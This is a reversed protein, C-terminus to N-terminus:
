PRQHSNIASRQLNSGREPEDEGPRALDTGADLADPFIHEIPLMQRYQVLQIEIRDLQDLDAIPSPPDYQRFIGARRIPPHNEFQPSVPLIRPVAHPGERTVPRPGLNPRHQRGQSWAPRRHLHPIIQQLPVRLPQCHEGALVAGATRPQPVLVLRHHHAALFHHRAGSVPV